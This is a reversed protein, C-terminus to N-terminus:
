NLKNIISNIPGGFLGQHIVVAKDLWLLVIYM